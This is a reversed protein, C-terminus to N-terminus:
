YLRALKEEEQGRPLTLTELNKSLLDYLTIYDNRLECALLSTKIYTKEDLEKLAERFDAVGPFKMTMVVLNARATHFTTFSDLIEYGSVETSELVESIEGQVEVGFNNGDSFRPVNMKVFISLTNIMESMELIEKQLIDFIDCLAKNSPVQVRNLARKIEDNTGKPEVFDPIIPKLEEKPLNFEKRHKYMEDLAQIKMPFIDFIIKNCEKELNSVMVKMQQQLIKQKETHPIGNVSEPIREIIGNRPGLSLKDLHAALKELDLPVEKSDAKKEKKAGKHTSM